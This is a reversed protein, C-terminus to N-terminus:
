SDGCVDVTCDAPLCLRGLDGNSSLTSDLCAVTRTRDCPELSLSAFKFTLDTYGHTSFFFFLTLTMNGFKNCWIGCGKLATHTM